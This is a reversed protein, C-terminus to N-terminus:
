NPLLACTVAAPTAGMQNASRLRRSAYCTGVVSLLATPHISLGDIVGLFSRPLAVISRQGPAWLRGAQVVPRRAEPRRGGRATREDPTSRDIVPMTTAAIHPRKTM